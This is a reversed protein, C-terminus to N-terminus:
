IFNIETVALRWSVVFKECFNQVAVIFDVPPLVASNVSFYLWGFELAKQDLMVVGIFVRIFVADRV